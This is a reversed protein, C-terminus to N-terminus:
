NNENREDKSQLTESDANILSDALQFSLAKIVEDNMIKAIQLYYVVIQKFLTFIEVETRKIKLSLANLHTGLTTFLNTIENPNNEKQAKEVIKISSSLIDSNEKILLIQNLLVEIQKAYVKLSPSNVAINSAKFDASFDIQNKNFTGM